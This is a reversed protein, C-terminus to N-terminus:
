SIRAPPIMASCWAITYAAGPLRGSQGGAQSMSSTARCVTNSEPGHGAESM